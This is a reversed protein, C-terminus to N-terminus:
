RVARWKRARSHMAMQIVVVPNQASVRKLITIARGDVKQGRVLQRHQDSQMSFVSGWLM